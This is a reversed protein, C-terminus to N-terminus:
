ARFENSPVSQFTAIHINRRYHQGPDPRVALIVMRPDILPLVLFFCYIALMMLPLLFLAWFKPMYGNVNGNGGWHSAMLEPMSPYFHVGVAFTLMIVALIIKRINNINKSVL